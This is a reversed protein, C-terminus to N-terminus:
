LDYEILVDLIVVKSISEIMLEHSDIVVYMLEYLEIKVM